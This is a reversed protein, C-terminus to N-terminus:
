IKPKSILSLLLHIHKLLFFALFLDGEESQCAILSFYINYISNLLASWMIIVNGNDLGNFEGVIHADSYPVVPEKM